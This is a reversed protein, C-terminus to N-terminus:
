SQEKSPSFPLILIMFPINTTAAIAKSPGRRKSFLGQKPQYTTFNLLAPQGIASHALDSSAIFNFM